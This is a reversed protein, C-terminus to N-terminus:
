KGKSSATSEEQQKLLDERMKNELDHERLYDEADALSMNSLDPIGERLSLKLTDTYERRIPDIKHIINGPCEWSAYLHMVATGPSANPAIAYEETLDIQRVPGNVSRSGQQQYVIKGKSDTIMRLFNYACIRKRYFSMTVTTTGGIKADTAEYHMNEIPAERDLFCVVLYGCFLLLVISGFFGAIMSIIFAVHKAKLKLNNERYDSEYNM